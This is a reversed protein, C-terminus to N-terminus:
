VAGGKKRVCIDRRGAVMAGMSATNLGFSQNRSLFPHSGTVGALLRPRTDQFLGAATRTLELKDIELSSFNVSPM